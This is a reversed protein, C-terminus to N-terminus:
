QTEQQQLLSVPCSHLLHPQTWINQGCESIKMNMVSYLSYSCRHYMKHSFSPIVKHNKTHVYKLLTKNQVLIRHQLKNTTWSILYLKLSM